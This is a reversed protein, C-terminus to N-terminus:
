RSNRTEIDAGQRVLYQVLELHGNFAAWELPTNGNVGKSDLLAPQATVIARAEELNGSQSADHLAAAPGSLQVSQVGACAALVFLSAGILTIRNPVPQRRRACLTYARHQSAGQLFNIPLEIADAHDPAIRIPGSDKCRYRISAVDAQPRFRGKMKM